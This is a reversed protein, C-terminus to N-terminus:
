AAYKAINLAWGELFHGQFDRTEERVEKARCRQVALAESHSTRRRKKWMEACLIPLDGREYNNPSHGM